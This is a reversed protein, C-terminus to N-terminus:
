LRNGVRHSEGLAAILRSLGSTHGEILSESDCKSCRNKWAMGRILVDGHRWLTIKWARAVRVFAIRKKPVVM